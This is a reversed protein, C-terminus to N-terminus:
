CKWNEKIFNLFVKANKKTQKHAWRQFPEGKHYCQGARRRYLPCISCDKGRGNFTEQCAYCGEIPIDTINNREFYDGKDGGHRSISEWMGVCKKKNVGWRKKNQKM